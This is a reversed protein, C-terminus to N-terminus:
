RGEKLIIGRVTKEMDTADAATSHLVPADFIEKVANPITGGAIEQLAHIQEKDTLGEFKDSSIAHLVSGAFKYPSATSVIL